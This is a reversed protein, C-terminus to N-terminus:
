LKYFGKNCVNYQRQGREQQQHVHDHQQLLHQEEQGAQGADTNCGRSSCTDMQVNFNLYFMTKNKHRAITDLLREFRRVKM